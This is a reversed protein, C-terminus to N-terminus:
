IVEISDPDIYWGSSQDNTLCSADDNLNKDNDNAAWALDLDDKVVEKDVEIHQDVIDPFDIQHVPQDIDKFPDTNLEETLMLLLEDEMIIPTVKSENSESGREHESEEGYDTESLWNGGEVNNGEYMPSSAGQHDSNKLVGLTTNPFLQFKSGEMLTDLEFEEFIPKSSKENGGLGFYSFNNMGFISKALTNNETKEMGSSSRSDSMEEDNDSVTDADVQKVVSELIGSDTGYDYCPIWRAQEEIDEEEIMSDTRFLKFFINTNM